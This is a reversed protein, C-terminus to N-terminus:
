GLMKSRQVAVALAKEFMPKLGDEALLVDMAAATTGGRSTVQLRLDEPSKDAREAALGASGIVTQRALRAALKPDLGQKEGAHQMAEILAFVYAPGSGSLATVAHMMNEDAIWVVDGVASLLFSAMDKHQKAAGASPFCVTIGQGIMAPTNPMARIIKADMGLVAAISGITKGAAISLIVTEARVFPRLGPLVEDFSQPKVALVIVDFEVNPKITDPSPLITHVRGCLSKLADVPTPEIVTVSACAQTTIWGSLLARGM